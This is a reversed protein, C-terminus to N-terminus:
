GCAAHLAAGGFRIVESVWIGVHWVMSVMTATITVAVAEADMSGGGERAGAPTDRGARLVRKTALVLEPADEKWRKASRKM